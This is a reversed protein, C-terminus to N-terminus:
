RSRSIRAAACSPACTPTAPACTSATIVCSASTCEVSAFRRRLPKGQRTPGAQRLGRVSENFRSRADDGVVACRHQLAWGLDRMRHQAEGQEGQRHGQHERGHQGPTQAPRDARERAAMWRRPSPSRFKAISTPPGDSMACSPTCSSHSRSFNISNCVACRVKNCLTECSRLVGKAAIVSPRANSASPRAPVTERSCRRLARGSQM